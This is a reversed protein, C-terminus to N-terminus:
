VFHSLDIVSLQVTPRPHETSARRKQQETDTKTQQTVTALLELTDNHQLFSSACIHPADLVFSLSEFEDTLCLVVHHNFLSVSMGNQKM